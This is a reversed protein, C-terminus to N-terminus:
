IEFGVPALGYSDCVAEMEEAAIPRRGELVVGLIRNRAALHWFRARRDATMGLAVRVRAFAGAPAPVRGEVGPHGATDLPRFEMPGPGAQAQAFATLGGPALLAAAPAWRLLSLRRGRAALEVRFRGVEFRQRVLRLEEPMLARIDFVAWLRRGDERHDAFGALVEASRPHPAPTDRSAFFQVLSATRCDRCYLIAGRASEAGAEWAFGTCEFRELARVWDAPLPWPRVPVERRTSMRRLHAAHSFRGRVPGWKLEMAPGAGSELILHRPGIRGPQWSRPVTFRTGNWAVEKWGPSTM